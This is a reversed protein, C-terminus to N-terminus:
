YLRSYEIQRSGNLSLGKPGSSSIVALVLDAQQFHLSHAILLADIIRHNEMKNRHTEQRHQDKNWGCNWNWNCKNNKIGHRKHKSTNNVRKLWMKHSM